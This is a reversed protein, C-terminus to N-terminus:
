KLAGRPLALLASPSTFFLYSLSRRSEKEKRVADCGNAIAKTSVITNEELPREFSSIMVSSYIARAHLTTYNYGSM